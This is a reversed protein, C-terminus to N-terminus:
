AGGPAPPERSDYPWPQVPLDLCRGDEARWSKGGLPGCYDPAEMPMNGITEGRCGKWQYCNGRNFPNPRAAPLILFKLGDGGGSGAFDVGAFSLDASAFGFGGFNALARDFFGPAAPCGFVEAGGRSSGHGPNWGRPNAGTLNLSKDREFSSGPRAFVLQGSDVSIEQGSFSQPEDFADAKPAESFAALGIAMFILAIALRAVLGPAARVFAALASAAERSAALSQAALNYAVKLLVTLGLAALNYAFQLSGTLGM